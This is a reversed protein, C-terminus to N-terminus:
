KMRVNFRHIDSKFHLRQDQLSEFQAKCTNCTLRPVSLVVNDQVGIAENEISDLTQHVSDDDQSDHLHHHSALSHPSHLLRGSDFFDSPLEFVSRHPREHSIAATTTSRTTSKAPLNAAMATSILHSEDFNFQTFM